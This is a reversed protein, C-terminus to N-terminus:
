TPDPHEHLVETSLHQSSEKFRLLKLRV